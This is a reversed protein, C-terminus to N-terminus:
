HLCLADVQLPRTELLNLELFLELPSVLIDSYELYQKLIRSEKERFGQVPFIM